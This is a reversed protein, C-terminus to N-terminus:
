KGKEERKQTKQQDKEQLNARSLVEAERGPGRSTNSIRVIERELSRVDIMWM